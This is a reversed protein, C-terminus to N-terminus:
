STVWVPDGLCETQGQKTALAEAEVIKWLDGIINNEPFLFFILM